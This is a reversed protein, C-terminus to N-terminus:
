RGATVGQGSEAHRGIGWSDAFAVLGILGLCALGVIGALVVDPLPATWGGRWLYAVASTGPGTSYRAMSVMHATQHGIVGVVPLALWARGHTWQPLRRWGEEMTLVNGAYVGIGVAVPLTYRGQWFLGLDAAQLTEAVVPLALTGGILALLVARQRWTAVVVASVIVSLVALGWVAILWDPLPTDLWGLNGVMEVLRGRTLGWSVRLATRGVLDPNPSGVFADLAATRVLWIGAGAIGVLATGLGGLVAPRRWQGLRGRTAVGVVLAIVIGVAILPSLPRTWALTVLSLAALIGYRRSPRSLLALVSTWCALAAAIELGSPNVGGLLYVTIPTVTVSLVALFRWGGLDWATAFAIALFLAGIVAHVMRAGILGPVPDLLRLPWGVLAYFLPQYAGATTVAQVEGPAPELPVICDAPGRFAFFCLPQAPAGALGAPIDVVHEIQVVLPPGPIETRQRTGLLEGGAVSAARVVHAPEDPVSFQPSAVAWTAGLM